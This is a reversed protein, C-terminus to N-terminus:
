TFTNRRKYEGEGGGRFEACYTPRSLGKKCHQWTHDGRQPSAARNGLPVVVVKAVLLYTQSASDFYKWAHDNENM